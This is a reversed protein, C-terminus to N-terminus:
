KVSEVRFERTLVDNRYTRYSVALDLEDDYVVETREVNPSAKPLSEFFSESSTGREFVIATCTGTVCPIGDQAYASAEFGEDRSGSNAAAEQQVLFGSGYATLEFRPQPLDPGEKWIESFLLESGAYSARNTGDFYQRLLPAGSPEMTGDAAQVLGPELEQEEWTGDVFRVLNFTGSLELRSPLVVEGNEVVEAGLQFIKYTVDLPRRSVDTPEQSIIEEAYEASEANEAVPTQSSETARVRDAADKPEPRTGALAILSVLLAAGVVIPVFRPRRGRDLGAWPIIPDQGTDNELLNTM